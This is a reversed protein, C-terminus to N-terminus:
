VSFINRFIFPSIQRTALNKCLTKKPGGPTRNKSLSMKLSAHPLLSNMALAVYLNIKQHAKPSVHPVIGKRAHLARLNRNEKYKERFVAVRRLVAFQM